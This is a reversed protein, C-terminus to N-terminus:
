TKGIPTQDVELVRSIGEWNVIADVGAIRPSVGRRNRAHVNAAVGRLLLDRALTSKGSGSVGTVVTLRALPLQVDVGALNHLHANRLTLWELGPQGFRTPRPAGLPHALPQALFRGTVSDPQRALTEHPGCAVIHGGLRGAGPGIDIVHDARRITDEDHEVVLLTRGKDRLAELTDLLIRNDHPHLGITPEDLVYCVGQLNSGLQAALRIRQAEGGSLTPAARELALYGLGVDALFALRSRIEALVDRAIAQERGAFGVQKLWRACDGVPMATLEAISLDLLRVALATRNLRKGGCAPCPECATPAAAGSGAADGVAQASLQDALKEAMAGIAEVSADEDSRGKPEIKPVYPLRV